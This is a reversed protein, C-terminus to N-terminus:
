HHAINVIELVINKSKEFNIDIKRNFYRYISYPPYRLQGCQFFTKKETKPHEFMIECKKHTKAKWKGIKKCLRVSKTLNEGEGGLRSM